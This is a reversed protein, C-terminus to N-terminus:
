ASLIYFFHFFICDCDCVLKRCYSVKEGTRNRIFELLFCGDAIMMQLFRDRYKGCWEGGLEAYADELGAAVGDVAAALDGLTKGSRRLLHRVARLKHEEMLRLAADRHHFPGAKFHPPVRFICHKPWKQVTAPPEAGDVEKEMGVVWMNQM